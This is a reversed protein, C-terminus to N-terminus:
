FLVKFILVKHVTFANLFGCEVQILSVTWRIDKANDMFLFHFHIWLIYGLQLHIYNHIDESVVFSFAM